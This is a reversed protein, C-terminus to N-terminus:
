GSIATWRRRAKSCNRSRAGASRWRSRCASRRGCRIAGASGRASRCSAPKTSASNSRRTPRPPSPSSRATPIPSGPRACGNSRRTSTPWRRPPPSPRASAAVVLTTAPDLGWTAEDFAEGDINSLVRVEFRDADRGARRGAPGPGAGVRRHRHPPDGDIEGFAGGEIADVLRADARPARRRARSGRARGARARRCPDGAPGRDSQRDRGRVLCRARRSSAPKPWSSSRARAAGRRSPDEVLRFPDRRRRLTLRKLRDPEAEFLEDLRSRASADRDATWDRSHWSAM